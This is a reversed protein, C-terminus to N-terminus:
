HANCADDGDKDRQGTGDAACQEAVGASFGDALSFACRLGLGLLRCGLVLLRSLGGHLSGMNFGAYRSIRIIVKLAPQLLVVTNTSVAQAQTFGM